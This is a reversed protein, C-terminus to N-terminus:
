AKVVNAAPEIYRGRTDVILASNKLILSYDFADHDTALMPILKSLKPAVVAMSLLDGYTKCRSLQPHERPLM